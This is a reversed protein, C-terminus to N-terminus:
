FAPRCQRLIQFGEQIAPRVLHAVEGFFFHIRRNLFAEV